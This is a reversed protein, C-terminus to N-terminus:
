DLISQDSKIPPNLSNYKKTPTKQTKFGVVFLFLRDM